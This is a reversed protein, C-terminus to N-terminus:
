NSGTPSAEPSAANGAPNSLPGGGEPTWTPPLRTPTVTATPPPPATEQLKLTPIPVETRPALPGPPNATGSLLTLTCLFILCSALLFLLSMGNYFGRM